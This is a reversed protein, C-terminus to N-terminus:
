KKLIYYSLEEFPQKWSRADEIRHGSDQAEVISKMRRLMSESLLSYMVNLFFCSQRMNVENHTKNTIESKNNSISM